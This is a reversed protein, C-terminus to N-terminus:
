TPATVCSRWFPQQLAKSSANLTGTDINQRATATSPPQQLCNTLSSTTPQHFLHPPASAPRLSVQYENDNQPNPITNEQSPWSPAARFEEEEDEEEPPSDSPTPQSYLATDEYLLAPDEGSETAREALEDGLSMTEEGWGSSWWGDNVVTSPRDAIDARKVENRLLSRKRTRKVIGTPRPLAKIKELPYEKELAWISREHVEKATRMEETEPAWLGLATSFSAHLEANLLTRKAEKQCPGCLSATHIAIVPYGLCAPASTQSYKRSSKMQITGFCTSARISTSHTCAYTLAWTKCMKTKTTRRRTHPNRLPLSGSRSKSNPTQQHHHNITSAFQSTRYHHPM